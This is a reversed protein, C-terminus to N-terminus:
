TKNRINLLMKNPEVLWYNYYMTSLCAFSEMICKLRNQDYKWELRTDIYKYHKILLTIKKLLPSLTDEQLTNICWYNLMVCSLTAM